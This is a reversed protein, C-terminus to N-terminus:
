TLLVVQWLTFAVLTLPLRGATFGEGLPTTQRAQASAHARLPGTDCQAVWVRHRATCFTFACLTHVVVLVFTHGFGFGVPAHPKVMTSVSIPLYPPSIVPVKSAECLTHAPAFGGTGRQLAPHAVALSDCMANRCGTVAEKWHEAWCARPDMGEPLSSQCGALM